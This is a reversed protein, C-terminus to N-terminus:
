STPMARVADRSAQWVWALMDDPSVGLRMAIRGCDVLLEKPVYYTRTHPRAAREPPRAFSRASAGALKPLTQGLCLGLLWSPSRDLRAAEHAVEDFFSRDGSVRIAVKEM